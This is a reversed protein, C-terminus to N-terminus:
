ATLFGIAHDHILMIGWLLSCLLGQEPHSLWLFPDSVLGGYGAGCTASLNIWGLHSSLHIFWPSQIVEQAALHSRGKLHGAGESRTLLCSSLVGLHPLLQPYLLGKLEEAQWRWM